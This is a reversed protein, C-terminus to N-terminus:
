LVNAASDLVEPISERIPKGHELALDTAYESAGAKIAEAIKFALETREAIPMRAITEQAAVASEAAKKADEPGGKPLKALLDGTVPSYVNFTEGSESPVWEGNIYMLFQTGEAKNLQSVTLDSGLKEIREKEVGM